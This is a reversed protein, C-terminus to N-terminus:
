AVVAAAEAEAEAKAAPKKSSVHAVTGTGAQSGLEETVIREADIALKEEDHSGARAAEQSDKENIKNRIFMFQAAVGRVVNTVDKRAAAQNAFFTKHDIEGNFWLLANLSYFYDARVLLDAYLKSGPSTIPTAITLKKGYSVKDQIGASELIAETQAIRKSMAAMANNITRTTIDEAKAVESEKDFGLLYRGWASIFHLNRSMYEFQREVIKRLPHNGLEVHTTIFPGDYRSFFNLPSPYDWDIQETKAAASTTM